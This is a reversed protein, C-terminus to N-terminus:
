CSAAPPPTTMWAVPCSFARATLTPSMSLGQPGPTKLDQPDLAKALGFDLVKVTGSPTVKVNAPKLDRHVIGQEHAEELANAVQAAMQLADEPPVGQGILEGLTAGDVLEV